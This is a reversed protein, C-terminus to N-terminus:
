GGQRLRNFLAEYDRSDSADDDFLPAQIRLPEVEVAEEIVLLDSDDALQIDHPESESMGAGGAPREGAPREGAPREEAPREEAPRKDTVREASAREPAPSEITPSLITPLEATERALGILEEHLRQELGQPGAADTDGSSAVAGDAVGGAEGSDYNRETPIAEEDDFDDGFLEVISLVTAVTEAVPPRSGNAVTDAEGAEAEETWEITPVNAQIPELQDTDALRDREELADGCDEPIAAEHDGAVCAFQLNVADTSPPIVWESTNWDALNPEYDPAFDPECDPAFDTAFFDTAFDPEGAAESEEMWM